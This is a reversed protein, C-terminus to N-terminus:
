DNIGEADEEFELYEFVAQPSVMKFHKRDQNKPDISPHDTLLRQTEAQKLKNKRNTFNETPAIEIGRARLELELCVKHKDKRVESFPVLGLLRPAVDYGTKRERANPTKELNMNEVLEEIRSESREELYSESKETLRNSIQIHMANYAEPGMDSAIKALETAIKSAAAEVNLAKKIGRYHGRVHKQPGDGQSPGNDAHEPAAGHETVFGNSALAYNSAKIESKGTKTMSSGIKVARECQHQTTAQAAYKRFVHFRVAKNEIVSRDWINAGAAIRQLIYGNTTAHHSGRIDAIAESTEARLFQWWCNLNIPRNHIVSNFLENPIDMHLNRDGLIHRAVIQGTQFEGFCARVLKATTMYRRNHKITQRTALLFFKDVMVEKIKKTVPNGETPVDQLGAIIERYTQFAAHTRWSVSLDKLDKWMLFYRVHRHFTLFGPAKINPDSRQFWAFHPDLFCKAFAALFAIDAKIEDQHMLSRLGSAIKNEADKTLSINVVARAMREIIDWYKLIFGALKGVTWWRTILPEQITTTLDKPVEEDDGRLKKWIRSLARKWTDSAFYETFKAFMDWVAHILQMANRNDLGGDGMYHRVPLRFVSQLDHLACSDELAVAKVMKFRKVLEVTLSEPTGAGSDNTLGDINDLGIKELSYICGTAVDESKKGSTDIDLIITRVSGDPTQTMDHEDWGSLLKVQSGKHGGDSMLYVSGCNRFFTSAILAQDVALQVVWSDIASASPSSHLVMEMNCKYSSSWKEKGKTVIRTNKSPHAQDIDKIISELELMFTYRAMGILLEQSDPSITPHSSAFGALLRQSTQTPQSKQRSLLKDLAAVMKREKRYRAVDSATFIINSYNNPIKVTTGEVTAGSPLTLDQLYFRSAKVPDADDLMTLDIFNQISGDCSFGLVIPAVRSRAVAARSQDIMGCLIEITSFVEDVFTAIEDLSAMAELRKAISEKRDQERSKNGPANATRGDQQHTSKKATKTTDLKDQTSVESRTRCRIISQRLENVKSCDQQAITEHSPVVDHELAVVNSGLKLVTVFELDNFKRVFFSGGAYQTLRKETVSNCDLAKALDTESVGLQDCLLVSSPFKAFQKAPKSRLPWWTHESRIKKGASQKRVLDRFM